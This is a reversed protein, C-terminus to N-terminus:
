LCRCIETAERGGFRGHRYVVGVCVYKGWGFSRMVLFCGEVAVKFFFVGKGFGWSSGGNM